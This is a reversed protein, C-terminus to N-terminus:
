RIELKMDLGNSVPWGLACLLLCVGRREEADKAEKAQITPQCAWNSFMFIDVLM